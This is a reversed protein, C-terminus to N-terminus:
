NFVQKRNSRIFTMLLKQGDKSMETGEVSLVLLKTAKMLIPIANDTVGKCNELSLETLTAFSQIAALGEDHISSDALVLEELHSLGLLDSLNMTAGYGSLDLKVLSSLKNINTLKVNLVGLDDRLQLCKLKTLRYLGALAKDGEETFNMGIVLTTLDELCQVATIGEETILPCINIFLHELFELKAIYNHIDSDSISIAELSLKRISKYYCLTNFLSAL